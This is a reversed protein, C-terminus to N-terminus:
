AISKKGGKLQGWNGELFEFDLDKFDIKALHCLDEFLEKPLLRRESYYNKLSSYNTLIGFQLLSRISPAMLKEKVNDLFERQKGKRFKVRQM